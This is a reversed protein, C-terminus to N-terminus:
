VVIPENSKSGTSDDSEGYKSAMIREQSVALVSARISVSGVALIRHVAFVAGGQFVPDCRFISRIEFDTRSRIDFTGSFWHRM